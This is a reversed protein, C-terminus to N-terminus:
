RPEAAGAAALPRAVCLALALAVLTLAAALYFPMGPVHVGAGPRIASAFAFTFLAPAFLGVLGMVSGNVGQLRGQEGAAVRQTMLAQAAPGYLGFFAGIPIGALLWAGTPAVAYVFYSVTGAALGVLVARREGLARVAPGVLVGQVIATCLGVFALTLGVERAGWGYRYGAYLVFVSPLAYHAVVYFTQVAVLGTLGPRSRVLALAGLPNAKRWEFRQARQEPPLSEPLVFWGYLANALTLAAAVWFPLRPDVEGLVGGLAPGAIFGIGWAAGILGFKAARQEPPTVDAIYAAATSYTAATIGSIVRGVFLWLLTPALAMLVYDLGLGVLSLLLVKRRGFRDSLMGLVPSFVFQMAAWAVAFLGYTEAATATDGGQFDVILRPLVPAVIGFALVDLVITVLIFAVAPARVTTLAGLEAPDDRADRKGVPV